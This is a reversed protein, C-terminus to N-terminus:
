VIQFIDPPFVCKMAYVRLFTISLVSTDEEDHPHDLFPLPHWSAPSDKELCCYHTPRREMYWRQDIGEEVNEEEGGKKFDCLSELLDKSIKLPEM